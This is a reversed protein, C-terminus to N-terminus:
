GDQWVTLVICYMRMGESLMDCLRDCLNSEIESGEEIDYANMFKKNLAAELCVDSISFSWVSDNRINSENKFQVKAWFVQWYM